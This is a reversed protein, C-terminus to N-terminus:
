QPQVQVAVAVAAAITGELSSMEEVWTKPMEHTTMCLLRARRLLANRVRDAHHQSIEIQM